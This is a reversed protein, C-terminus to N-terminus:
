LRSLRFEYCGRLFGQLWGQVRVRPRGAGGRSPAQVEAKPPTPPAAKGGLRPKPNPSEFWADIFHVGGMIASYGTGRTRRGQSSRRISGLCPIPLPLLLPFGLSTRM